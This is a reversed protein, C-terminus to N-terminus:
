PAATSSSTCRIIESPRKRESSSSHLGEGVWLRHADVFCCRFSLFEGLRRAIRNPPPICRITNSCFSVCIFPFGLVCVATTTPATPRNYFPETPRYTTNRPFFFSRCCCYSHGQRVVGIVDNHTRYPVLVLYKYIYRGGLRLSEIPVTAYFYPYTSTHAEPYMTAGSYESRGCSRVCLWATASKM